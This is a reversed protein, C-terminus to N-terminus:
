VNNKAHGPRTYLINDSWIYKAGSWAAAIAAEPFFGRGQMNASTNCLVPIGSIKEYCQLIRGVRTNSATPDITQLRASADLHVVAPIRDAWGGRFRHDFLMYPDRGGPEFVEAARSALCVPAVPRYYERNKIANLRDKMGKSCAPALISRNGLARPGLEARGHLVVVPEDEEHLIRALYEEDCSRGIWDTPPRKPQLQPGAYVDWELDFARRVRVMECCAAGIAGGSDNTFPPVWISKFLGTSRLLGNWKINLACGGSLCLNMPGRNRLRSVANTLADKLVLGVFAQFTAILDPNSMGPFLEHRREITDQAFKLVGERSFIHSADFLKNFVVFADTEVHGLAAYAMAKGPVGLEYLEYEEETWGSTDKSFPEIQQCLASFINGAMPYLPGLSTVSVESASVQYLQPLMGGDWVLVLADEGARPFPSSCYSALIHGAVHTFSAYGRSFITHTPAPFLFREIPNEEMLGGIYPAVPLSIQKGCWATRVGPEDDRAVAAWGDIVFRDVENGPLDEAELIRELLSLEDLTSYRRRNDLKEVEISFLLRNDDIAAVAADHTVKLGVVIM